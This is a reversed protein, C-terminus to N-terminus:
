GVILILPHFGSQRFEFVHRPQVNKLADHAQRPGVRIVPGHHLWRFLALNQDRHVLKQTLSSLFLKRCTWYSSGDFFGNRIQFFRPSFCKNNSADIIDFCLQEHCVHVTEKTRFACRDLVSAILKELAIISGEVGEHLVHVFSLHARQQHKVYVWSVVRQVLLGKAFPQAIHVRRHVHTSKGILSPRSTFCQGGCWM